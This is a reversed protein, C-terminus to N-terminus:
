SSEKKSRLSKFTDSAFFVIIGIGVGFWLTVFRIILAISVALSGTIGFYILLGTISGEAAGLGGPIMSLAGALTGLSFTLISQVLSFEQSFAAVVVYLSICELLWALFSIFFSSSLLPFRLLYYVQQYFNLLSKRFRRLKDPKTLLNITQKIFGERRVVVFFFILLVVFILFSTAGFPYAFLGIGLLAAMAILDTLRDFFVISISVPYPVDAKQQLLYSKILEGAKGPTISMMLGIFFVTTNYKLPISYGSWKFFLHWKCLRLLYSGLTLLFATLLYGVPIARIHSTVQQLDTFFLFAATVIIGAIVGLILKSVLNSLPQNVSEKM